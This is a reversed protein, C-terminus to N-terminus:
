IQRLIKYSFVIKKTIKDLFKLQYIIKKHIIM